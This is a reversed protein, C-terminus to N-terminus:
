EDLVLEGQGDLILVVEEMDEMDLTALGVAAAVRLFPALLWCAFLAIATMRPNITRAAPENYRARDSRGDCSSKM